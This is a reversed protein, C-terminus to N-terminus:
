VNLSNVHSHTRDFELFARKDPWRLQHSNTFASRVECTGSLQYSGAVGTIRAELRWKVTDRQRLFLEFSITM